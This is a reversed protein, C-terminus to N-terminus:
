SESKENNTFIQEFVPKGAIQNIIHKASAPIKTRGGRWNCLIGRNIGCLSLVSQRKERMEALPLSEMWGKFNESDKTQGM